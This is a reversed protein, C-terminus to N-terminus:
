EKTKKARIKGAFIEQIANDLCKESTREVLMKAGDSLELARKAALLALTFRSGNSYPLLEELPIKQTQV